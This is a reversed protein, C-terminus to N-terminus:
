KSKEDSSTVKIGYGRKEEAEQMIRKARDLPSEPTKAQGGAGGGGVAFNGVGKGGSVARLAEEYLDLQELTKDKIVEPSINFTGTILRKRYDLAKGRLDEHTKNLAELKAKAEALATSASASEKLQEEFKKISAESAFLKTTAEDVQKKYTTETNNWTTKAEGYEKELGEARAKIALLDKEPVLKGENGSPQTQNAQDGM